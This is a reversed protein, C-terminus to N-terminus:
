FTTREFMMGDSFLKPIFYEIFDRFLIWNIFTDMNAM